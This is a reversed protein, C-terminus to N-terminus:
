APLPVPDVGRWLNPTSLAVGNAKAYLFLQMKYAPIWKAAAGLIAEGLLLTEGWPMRVAQTALVDDSLDRFYELIEQAQSEMVEPFRALDYDKSRALYIDRWGAGPECFGRLASIACVSLYRLLEEVSRQGPSPRWDYLSEPIKHFLHITVRCDNAMSDAIWQNQFM